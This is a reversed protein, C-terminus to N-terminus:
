APLGLSRVATVSSIESMTHLLEDTPKTDVDILNYAVEDRSKNIMDIVNIKRDAFLSLLGGLTGSVNKNAVALRYGESRSLVVAPFNVSNRITGNVLFERLTRAAMIACNEEAEQTSAGLHPTAYVGPCGLLIKSPFDVFYSALIGEQLADRVAVEDVVSARAFNVLVTGPRCNLLVDANILGINDASAPVHISVYDSQKCLSSLDEVRNVANSIRWAAAVSLFPDYGLVKM